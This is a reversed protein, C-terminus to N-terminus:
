KSSHPWSGQPVAVVGVTGAVDDDLMQGAPKVFAANGPEMEVDADLLIRELTEGLEGGGVAPLEVLTTAEVDDEVGVPRRSNV